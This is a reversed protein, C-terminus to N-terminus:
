GAMGLRGGDTSQMGGQRRLTRISGRLHAFLVALRVIAEGGGGAGVPDAGPGLTIGDRRAQGAKALCM